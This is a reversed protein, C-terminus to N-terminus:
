SSSTKEVCAKKKDSQATSVLSNRPVEDAEFRTKGCGALNYVTVVSEYHCHKSGIPASDWECNYPRYEIVIQDSDIMYEAAYKIRWDDPLLWWVVFALVMIGFLWKLVASVTDKIDQLLPKPRPQVPANM